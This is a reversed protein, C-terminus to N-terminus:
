DRCSPCHCDSNFDAFTELEAYTPFDHEEGCEPCSRYWAVDFHIGCAVAGAWNEDWLWVNGSNPNLGYQTHRTPKLGAENCAAICATFRKLDAGEFLEFINNTM